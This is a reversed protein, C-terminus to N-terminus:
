WRWLAALTAQEYDPVSQLDMIEDRGWGAIRTDVTWSGEQSPQQAAVPPYSLRTGTVHTFGTGGVAGAVVSDNLRVDQCGGSFANPDGVYDGPQLAYVQWPLEGGLVLCHDFSASVLRPQLMLAANSSGYDVCDVSTFPGFPGSGTGELQFTDCHADNGDPKVSPGFVCGHRAIGTLEFTETPRAAATDEPNRRFGLVLEYMGVNRAGRTINGAAYRSWGLEIDACRTLVYGGDSVFGFLSLRACQELRMGQESITVSGFGELPVILVNREWEQQGVNQLVPTASSTYGGGMLQGPKVRVVAGAAVQAATLGQIRRAIDRWDCEAVVDTDATDGPWPTDAPFHTGNPGFSRVVEPRSSTGGGGAGAEAEASPTPTPTRSATATPTPTPDASPSAPACGTVLAGLGLLAGTQLLHRRTLPPTM